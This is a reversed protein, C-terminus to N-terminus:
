PIFYIIVALLPLILHHLFELTFYRSFGDNGGTEGMGFGPFWGLTSSFVTLLAIGIVFGPTGRIITAIFIGTRELKGGRRAWGVAMGLASGVLAGILIGPVAIWLTNIISPVLVEWVPKSYFFSSGFDGTLLNGMYRLYQEWLSGTLGWEQLLRQRAEESMGAEVLMATPDAPVIRFMFFMLTTVAVVVLASQALRRLIYARM